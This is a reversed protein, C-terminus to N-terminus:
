SCQRDPERFRQLPCASPLRPMGKGAPGITLKRLLPMSVHPAGRIRAIAAVPSEASMVSAPLSMTAVLAFFRALRKSCVRILCFRQEATSILRVTCWAKLPIARSM